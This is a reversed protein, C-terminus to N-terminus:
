QAHNPFILYNLNPGRFYNFVRVLFVFHMNSLNPPFKILLLLLQM